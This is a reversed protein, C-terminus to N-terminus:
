ATGRQAAQASALIATLPQNLEHALSAAVLGFGRQRDLHALQAGLVQREEMRAQRDAAKTWLHLSRELALGIFGVDGALGALMGLTDTLGSADRPCAVVGGRPFLLEALVLLMGVSALVHSIAITLAGVSKQRRAIRWAWGVVQLVLFLQVLPVFALRYLGLAYVNRCVGAVLLFGLSALALGRLRWPVGQDLRLAQVTCLLSTFDLLNVVPANLWGPIVAYFGVLFHAGAGLLSGLCWLAVVPSRLRALVVWMLIPMILYVMGLNLSSM